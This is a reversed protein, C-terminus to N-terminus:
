HWNLDIKELVGLKRAKELVREKSITLNPIRDIHCEVYVKDIRHIMGSDMLRELVVYEAGEIDMKICIPGHELSEVFECIDVTEVSIRNKYSVNTKGSMITSGEFFNGNKGSEFFLDIFGNRDAMARNYISINKYRKTQSQLKTFVVPNPEFSYVRKAFMSFEIAANGIHAGLDIVVNDPGLTEAVRRMNRTDRDLLRDPIRWGLARFMMPIRHKLKM